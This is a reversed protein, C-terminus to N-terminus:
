KLKNVDIDVSFGNNFKNESLFKTKDTLDIEKLQRAFKCPEIVELQVTIEILPTIIAKLGFFLLLIM